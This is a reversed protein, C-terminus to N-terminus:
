VVTVLEMMAVIAPGVVVAVALVPKATLVVARPAAAAVLVVKWM